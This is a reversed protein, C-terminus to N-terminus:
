LAPHLAHLLVGLPQIPPPLRSAFLPAPHCSLRHLACPPRRVEFIRAVAARRDSDLFMLLMGFRRTSSLGELAQLVCKSTGASCAEHVAANLVQFCDILSALTSETLCEKFLPAYGEVTLHTLWQLREDVPCCQMEKWKLEFQQYSKPFEQGGCGTGGNGIGRSSTGGGGAGGSGTGGRCTGGSGEILLSASPSTEAQQQKKAAVLEAARAATAVAQTFDVARGKPPAGRGGAMPLPVAGGEEKAQRLSARRETEGAERSARLAERLEDSYPSLSLAAEYAVTAAAHQGLLSLAQGERFHGKVSKPNLKTSERADAMALPLRRAEAWRNNSALPTSTTDSGATALRLHAASRNCLLVHRASPLCIDLAATYCRIAEQVEGQPILPAHPISPSSPPRHAKELAANGQQKLQDASRRDTLVLPKGGLSRPSRSSTPVSPSSTTEMADIPPSFSPSSDSEEPQSNNPSSSFQGRRPEKAFRSSGGAEGSPDVEFPANSAASTEVSAAVPDDSVGAAGIFQDSLNEVTPFRGFDDVLKTALDHEETSLGELAAWRKILDMLKSGLRLVRDKCYFYRLLSLWFALIQLAYFSSGPFFGKGENFNEEIARVFNVETGALDLFRRHLKPELVPEAFWDHLETSTLQM